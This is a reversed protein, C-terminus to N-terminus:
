IKYKVTFKVILKDVHNIKYAKEGRQSNGRPDRELYIGNEEDKNGLNCRNLCNEIHTIIENYIRLSVEEDFNDEKLIELVNKKDM